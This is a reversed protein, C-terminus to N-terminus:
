FNVEQLMITKQILYNSLDYLFKVEKISDSPEKGHKLLSGSFWSILRSLITCM